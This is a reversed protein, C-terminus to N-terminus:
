GNNIEELKEKADKMADDYGDKYQLRFLNDLHDIISDPVGHQSRLM